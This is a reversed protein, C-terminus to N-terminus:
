SVPIGPATMRATRPHHTQRVRMQSTGSAPPAATVAAIRQRAENGSRTGPVAIWITRM